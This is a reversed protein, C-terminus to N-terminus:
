HANGGGSSIKVNSLFPLLIMSAFFLFSIIVFVYNISMVFANKNVVNSLMLYAGTVPDSIKGTLLQTYNEIQEIVYPDTSSMNENMYQNFIRTKSSIMSGIIALGIAGGLNRTLNYLSSANQVKDKSVTGLSINNTPIFCFM